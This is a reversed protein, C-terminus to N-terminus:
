RTVEDCAGTVTREVASLFVDGSRGPGEEYEGQLIQGAM